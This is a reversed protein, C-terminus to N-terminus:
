RLVVPLKEIEVELMSLVQKADRAKTELDNPSLLLQTLAYYRNLLKYLQQTQSHSFRWRSSYELICEELGVPTPEPLSDALQTLATSFSIIKDINNQILGPVSKKDFSELPNERNDSVVKLLHVLELPVFRSCTLYFALGEMDVLKEDVYLSCPEDVTKLVAGPLANTCHLAPYYGGRVGQLKEVWFLEGLAHSAHGAIGINLWPLRALSPAHGILWGCAAAANLQGIGTVLLHDDGNSYTSWPKDIKRKLKLADIIPRAEAPLAVVYVTM